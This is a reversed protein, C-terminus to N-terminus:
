CFQAVIKGTGPHGPNSQYGADTQVIVIHIINGSINSGSKKVQSSVAVAM